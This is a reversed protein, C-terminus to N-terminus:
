PERVRMYSPPTDPYPSGLSNSFDKGHKAKDILMFADEM